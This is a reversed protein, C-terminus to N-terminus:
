CPNCRIMIGLPKVGDRKARTWPGSTGNNPLQADPSPQARKMVPYPSMVSSTAAPLTSIGGTCGVLTSTAALVLISGIRLSNQM